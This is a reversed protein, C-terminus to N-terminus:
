SQIEQAWTNLLEKNLEFQCDKAMTSLKTQCDEIYAAAGEVGATEAKTWMYYDQYVVYGDLIEWYQEFESDYLDYLNMISYLKDFDREYYYRDCKSVYYTQDTKMKIEDELTELLVPACSVYFFTMFLIVMLKLGILAFSPKKKM